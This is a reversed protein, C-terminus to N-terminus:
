PAKATPPTAAPAPTTGGGIWGKAAAYWAALIGTVIGGGIPLLKSESSSLGFFTTIVAALGAMWGQWNNTFWNGGSATSTAATGSITTKLDKKRGGPGELNIVVDKKDTASLVQGDKLTFTVKDQTGDKEVKVTFAQTTDKNFDDVSKGGITKASFGDEIKFSVSKTADLAGSVDAPQYEKLPLQVEIKRGNLEGVLELAKNAEKYVTTDITIKSKGATTSAEIKIGAVPTKLDLNELGRNDINDIEVSNKDYKFTVPNKSFGEQAVKVKADHNTAFLRKGEAKIADQQPGTLADYTVKDSGTIASSVAATEKSADIDATKSIATNAKYADYLKQALPALTPDIAM